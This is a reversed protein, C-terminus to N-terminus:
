WGQPKRRSVSKNSVFMDMLKMIKEETYERDFNKADEEDMYKKFTLFPPLDVNVDVNREKLYYYSFAYISEYLELERYKSTLVCKLFSYIEYEKLSVLYGITWLPGNGKVIESTIEMLRIEDM